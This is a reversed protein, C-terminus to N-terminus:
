SKSFFYLYIALLNLPVWPQCFFVRWGGGGLFCQQLQCLCVHFWDWRWLSAGTQVWCDSVLTKMKKHMLFNFLESNCQNQLDIFFIM